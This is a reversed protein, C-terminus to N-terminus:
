DDHDVWSNLQIHATGIADEISDTFYDVHKYHQNDRYFKVTYEEYDSNFYVIARGVIARNILAVQKM